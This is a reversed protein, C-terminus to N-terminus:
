FNVGFLMGFVLSFSSPTIIKSLEAPKARNYTSTVSNFDVGFYYDVLFFGAAGEMGLKIGFKNFTLEENYVGTMNPGTPTSSYSFPNFVITSAYNYVYRSYSAAIYGGAPSGDDLDSFFYKSDYGWGSGTMQYSQLDYNDNNIRIDGNGSSSAGTLTYPFYGTLGVIVRNGISREYGVAFSHNTSTFKSSLIEGGGGSNFANFNNNYVYSLLKISNRQAHVNINMIFIIIVLIKFRIHM